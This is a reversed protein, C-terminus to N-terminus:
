RVSVNRIKQYRRAMELEVAVTIAASANKIEKAEEEEVKLGPEIASPDKLMDPNAGQPVKKEEKVKDPKVAAEKRVTGAAKLFKDIAAM